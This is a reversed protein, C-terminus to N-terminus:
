GSETPYMGLDMATAGPTDVTDYNDDEGPAWGRAYINFNEKTQKAKQRLALEAMYRDSVMSPSLGMNRARDHDKSFAPCAIGHLTCVGEMGNSLQVWRATDWLCAPQIECMSVYPLGGYRIYNESSDTGSCKMSCSSVLYLLVLFIVGCLLLVGPNVKYSTM